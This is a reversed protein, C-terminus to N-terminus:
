HGFKQALKLDKPQLTERNDHKALANMKNFQDTAHLEYLEHITRHSGGSFRLGSFVKRVTQQVIDKVSQKPVLLDTSSQYKKIERMAVTGPRYRRKVGGIPTVVGSKTTKKCKRRCQTNAAQGLSRRQATKRPSRRLSSSSAIKQQKSEGAKRAIYTNNAKRPSKRISSATAPKKVPAAEKDFDDQLHVATPM